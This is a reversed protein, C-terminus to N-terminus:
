QPFLPVGTDTVFAKITLTIQPRLPDNSIVEVNEEILGKRGSTNLKVTVTGKETPKIHSSGAM